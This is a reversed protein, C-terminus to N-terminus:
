IVTIDVSVHGRYQPRARLKNSRVTNCRRHALRLNARDLPQGGDTLQQVHDVTRSMPHHHHLAQDVWAHCQWCHTEEAFVRAKM